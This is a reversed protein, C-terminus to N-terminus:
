LAGFQRTALVKSALSFGVHGGVRLTFEARENRSLKEEVLRWYIAQRGCSAKIVTTVYYQTLAYVPAHPRFATTIMNHLLAKVEDPRDALAPFQEVIRALSEPPFVANFVDM